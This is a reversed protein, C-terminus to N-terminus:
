GVYLLTMTGCHLAFNILGDKPEEMFTPGIGDAM